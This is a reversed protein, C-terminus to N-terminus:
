LVDFYIWKEKGVGALGSQSPRIAIHYHVKDGPVQFLSPHGGSIGTVLLRQRFDHLGSININLTKSTILPHIKTYKSTHKNLLLHPHHPKGIATRLLTPYWVQSQWTPVVILMRQVQDQSIKRLVKKKMLFIPFCLPVSEVLNAANCGHVHIAVLRYPDPKWPIYRPLQASLRPAFLDIEPRGKIQCIRQFIQPPFKWELHDGSNRSQWDAEVNMSSPLYEGTITIGHHLFYKWNKKSIRNFVQKFFLMSLSKGIIFYSANPKSHLFICIM